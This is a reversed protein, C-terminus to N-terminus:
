GRPRQSTLRVYLLTLLMSLLAVAIVIGIALLPQGVFGPGQGPSRPDGGPAPTPSPDDALVLAVQTLLLAAVAATVRVARAVSRRLASPRAGPDRGSV